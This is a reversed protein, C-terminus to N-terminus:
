RGGAAKALASLTDDPRPLELQRSAQLVDALAQQAQKNVTANPDFYKVMAAKVAQMDARAAPVQRSLLSLRANLLRLKLNERMFVAQEPTLLVADPEDIRSVRVLDSTALWVRSTFTHWWQSWKAQWGSLMGAEPAPSEAPANTKAQQAPKTTTTKKQTATQAAAQPEPASTTGSQADPAAPSDPEADRKPAGVRETGAHGSEPKSAAVVTAEAAPATGETKGAAPHAAAVPSRAAKAPAAVARKKPEANALPWEDVARALEDLRSSLLPLDAVASAKIRDIDRAMARQVPNLRPQAAKAIRGDAAQLASLLPQASGTLEAQQMALRIGSEIDLVLTDDRSRSVSLMLEELQTRQLSVESLKVEAVSLRAQLEQVLTLAQDASDRSKESEEAVDASRRALEQQIRDLRQWLLGSLVLALLAVMLMTTAFWGGSAPQVTGSASAVRSPASVSAPAPAAVSASAPAADGAAAQEPASGEQTAATLPQSTSAATSLTTENM